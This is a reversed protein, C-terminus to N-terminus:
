PLTAAPSCSFTLHFDPFPGPMFIPDCDYATVRLACGDSPLQVVAVVLRGDAVSLTRCAPPAPEEPPPTKHSHALAIPAVLTLALLLTALRM